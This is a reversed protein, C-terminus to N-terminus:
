KSNVSQHKKTKVLKILQAPSFRLALIRLLMLVIVIGVLYLTDTNSEGEFRGRVIENLMIILVTEIILSVRVRGETLYSIISRIVEVLAVIVISDLILTEITHTSNIDAANQFLHSGAQYIGVGIGVIVVVLLLYLLINVLESFSTVVKQHLRRSRTPLEMAVIM